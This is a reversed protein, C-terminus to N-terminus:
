ICYRNVLYRAKDYRSRDELTCVLMFMSCAEKAEDKKGCQILTKILELWALGTKSNEDIARRYYIIAIELKGQIAAWTGMDTLIQEKNIEALSLAKEFCLFAEEFRRLKSLIRAKNVFFDAMVPYKQVILDYRELAGELDGNEELSQAEQYLEDESKYKKSFSFNVMLPYGLFILCQIHRIFM